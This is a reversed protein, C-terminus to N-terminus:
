SSSPETASPGAPRDGAFKVLDACAFCTGSCRPRTPPSCRIANRRRSSSRTTREPSIDYCREVFSRVVDTLEIFLPSRAGAPRTGPRWDSSREFAWVDPSRRRPRPGRRRLLRCAGLRAVVVIAVIALDRISDTSRDRRRRRHRPLRGSGGRRQDGFRHPTRAPVLIDSRRRPRRLRAARRRRKRTRIAWCARTPRARRRRSAPSSKPTMLMEGAPAPDRGRRSGRGGADPFKPATRKVHGTSRTLSWPGDGTDVRLLARELTASRDGVRRPDRRLPTAVLVLCALVTPLLWPTPRMTGAQERQRFYSTLPEIFDTSTDVDIPDLKM